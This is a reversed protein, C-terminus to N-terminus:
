AGARRYEALTADVVRPWDQEPADATNTRTIRARLDPEAVLRALARALGEDDDALLGNVGDVVFDEVGTGRRAVVPLGATRAELAAVGFAELRAPSLYLDADHHAALLVARPVRGRLTVVGSLGARDVRRQVAARQPGDGFVDVSFRAGAPVMENARAVVDVLAAPRKRLALRMATTVRVPGGAGAARVGQRAWRSADIGDPLVAVPAGAAIDAVHRAAMASVASLAAGRRAWRGAYGLARMLPRSRELVCHWTVATPMALGLSVRAMDMAFPSVVGMHIHAVDFGGDRLRRRVEPPALPNVPLGGPLPIDFRHVAVGDVADVTGRRRGGAGPTATFVEVDHGRDRLNVALDHVQVEIGGLRPLYCDSLLAVKM